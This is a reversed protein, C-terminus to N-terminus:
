GREDDEEEGAGMSRGEAALARRADRPDISLPRYVEVRDGDQLERDRGAPRGWVGCECNGLDEDPFRAAIGSLDIAEAITTGPVVQLGILEQREPLAFVVEVAITVGEAHGSM